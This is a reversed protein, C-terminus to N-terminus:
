NAELFSALRRRLSGSEVARGRVAIDAQEL